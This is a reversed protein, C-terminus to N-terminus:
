FAHCDFSQWAKIIKVEGLTLGYPNAGVVVRFFESALIQRLFQVIKVISM